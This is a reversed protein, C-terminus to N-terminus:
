SRDFDRVPLTAEVRATSLFENLTDMTRDAIRQRHSLEAVVSVFTGVVYSYFAGGVLMACVIYAHEANTVAIVDGYGVTTMTEM